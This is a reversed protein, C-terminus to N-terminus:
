GFIEIKQGEKITIIAKTRRNKKGKLKGWGKKKAPLNAINVKVVNVKYTKEIAEKVQYKNAREDVEFVYTNTDALISAKETVYPRKIPNFYQDPKESLVTNNKEEAM